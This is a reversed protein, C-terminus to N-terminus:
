VLFVGYERFFFASIISNSTSLGSTFGGSVSCFIYYLIGTTVDYKSAVSLPANVTAPSDLKIIYKKDIWEQVTNRVFEMENSASRNNETFSAPPPSAMWRPMYGDELISLVNENASLIEKYFKVAQPQSLGRRLPFFGKNTIELRKADLFIEFELDSQDQKVDPLNYNAPLSLSQDTHVFEQTKVPCTSTSKHSTGCPLLPPVMPPNSQSSSHSSNLGGASSKNQLTSSPDQM